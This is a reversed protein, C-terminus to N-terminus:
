YLDFTNSFAGEPAQLMRCYKQSANLSLQDHFGIQLRKSLSQKVCTKSYLKAVM